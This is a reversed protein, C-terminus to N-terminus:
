DFVVASAQAENVLTDNVKLAILCQDPLTKLWRTIDVLDNGIRLPPFKEGGNIDLWQSAVDIGFFLSYLKCLDVM